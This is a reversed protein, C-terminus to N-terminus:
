DFFLTWKFELACAIKKATEISPSRVGNEINTYTSRSVGARDAVDEHREPGRLKILWERNPEKL